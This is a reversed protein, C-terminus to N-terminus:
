LTSLLSMNFEMDSLKDVVGAVDKKGKIAMTLPGVEVPNNVVTAGVIRTIGDIKKIFIRTMKKDEVSGRGIVRDAFDSETVGAFTCAGEFFNISYSSATEFVTRVGAMTKGVASGQSTANAWNGVLHKRAFIVDQFQACDGAAFIGPVNTELFENTEVGLNIKVGSSALFSLDSKIGVGVCVVDAEYKKGSKTIAAGVEGSSNKEEFRSVEERAVVKVGNRVLVGTLIRSSVEDLKGYWLYPERVIVTVHEVGIKKFSCVMDLGIFGGGVVIANRSKESARIISDADDITRLYLINGFGAGPVSLKNVYGGVAILLQEFGLEDGNSLKVVKRSSELGEVRTGKLLEINKDKYWEDKKLFVRERDIEGRIYNKLIVRSYQTHNEDNIIIISAEPKLGRIVEAATTGAASGGIILYDAKKM